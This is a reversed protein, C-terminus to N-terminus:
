EGNSATTAFIAFKDSRYSLLGDQFVVLYFLEGDSQPLELSGELQGTVNHALCNDGTESESQCQEVFVETVDPETEEYKWSVTAESDILEFM